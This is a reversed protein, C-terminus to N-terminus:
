TNLTNTEITQQIKSFCFTKCEIKYLYYIPNYQTRKFCITNCQIACMSHQATSHQWAHCQITNYQMAGYQIISDRNHQRTLRTNFYKRATAHMDVSLTLNNLAVSYFM